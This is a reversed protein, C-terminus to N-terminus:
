KIIASSILKQFNIPLNFKKKLKLCMLPHTKKIFHCYTKYIIPRLM